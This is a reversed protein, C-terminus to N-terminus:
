VSRRTGRPRRNNGTKNKRENIYVKDRPSSRRPHDTNNDTVAASSRRRRKGRGSSKKNAKNFAIKSARKSRAESILVKAGSAATASAGVIIEVINYLLLVITKLLFDYINKLIECIKSGFRRLLRAIAEYFRGFVSGLTLRYTLFGLGEGFVTFARVSGKNFPLAFLSTVAGCVAFFLIDSVAVAAGSFRFLMRTGRLVDYLVALAVGLAISALFYVTQDSLSFWM